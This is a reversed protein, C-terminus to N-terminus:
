KSRLKKSRYYLIETQIWYAYFLIVSMGLLVILILFGAGSFSPSFMHELSSKSSDAAARGCVVDVLKESSLQDANKISGDTRSVDFFVADQEVIYINNPCDIKAQQYLQDLSKSPALVLGVAIAM